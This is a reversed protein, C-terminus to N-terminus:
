FSDSSQEDGLALYHNIYTRNARLMSDPYIPVDDCLQQIMATFEDDTLLDRDRRHLRVFYERKLM